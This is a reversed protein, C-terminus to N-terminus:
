PRAQVKGRSRIPAPAARAGSLRVDLGLVRALLDMRRRAGWLELEIDGQSSCVLRLTGGNQALSVSRVSQRHGRDLADALRLIGALVRVARRSERPLDDIEPSKRRPMGRRHFRAVTAMVEVELPTFGKLDGNKILYYSHHHHRVHSIHHGVDHLLAAFELLDREGDGLAHLARAQDFLSTALLAVHFAHAQDFLCREALDIVSRRRVDPYEEARALNRPHRRVYDMLVGERLAWESLTIERVGLVELAACLLLAGTAIVDARLPDLGRLRQRQELPMAVLRDRIAAIAAASVSLHHLVDPKRGTEEAHALAGLALITGSAGVACDFGSERVRPVHPALVEEVHRELRRRDPASLPDSKAFREHMRLVGLKESAAYRVDAGAGLAIELSGGGLDLVLARKDKLHISHQVALYIFRAEEEGSIPRAYVGVERHIRDLLDEGNRAERIASTAVAVVKDVRYRAALRAYDKLVEVARHMAAQSLRGTSLTRAGLRVMDKESDLLQFGGSRGAEAILMHFSNSGLDIAAIKM